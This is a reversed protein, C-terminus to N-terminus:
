HRFAISIATSAFRGCPMDRGPVERAGLDTKAGSDLGSLKSTQFNGRVYMSSVVDAGAAAGDGDELLIGAALESGDTNTSAYAVGLGTDTVIGLVTGTSLIQSEAVTVPVALFQKEDGAARIEVPEYTKTNM